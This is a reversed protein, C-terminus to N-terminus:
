HCLNWLWHFSKFRREHPHEQISYFRKGWKIYQLLEFSTIHEPQYHLQVGSPHQWPAGKCWPVSAPSQPAAIELKKGMWEAWASKLFAIVCQQMWRHIFFASFVCPVLVQHSYSLFSFKPLSIQTCFISHSSLTESDTSIIHNCKPTPVALYQHM